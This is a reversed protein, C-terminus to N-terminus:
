TVDSNPIMRQVTQILADAKIPKQIFDASGDLIIEGAHQSVYGSIVVVPLSPWRTRIVDLLNLGHVKPLVLDTIVLDFHFEDLMRLAEAGDEAELVIYGEARLLEAFAHRAPAEDEVFLIM